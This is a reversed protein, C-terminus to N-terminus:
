RNFRPILLYTLYTGYSVFRSVFITVKRDSNRTKQAPDLNPFELVFTIQNVTSILINWDLFLSRNFIFHFFERNKKKVEASILAFNM